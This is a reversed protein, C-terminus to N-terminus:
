AHRTSLARLLQQMGWLLFGTLLIGLVVLMIAIYAFLDPAKMMMSMLSEEYYFFWQHDAPFLLTHFDYFVKEAGALLIILTVVPLLAAYALLIRPRPLLRHQKIAIATAIMWILLTVMIVKKLTTLLLAVDTLHIIESKTLLPTRQGHHTQYSLTELGKGQQHISSVIGKFLAIHEERPSQDFNPKIKNHPAYLTINKGIGAHDYLLPYAFQM